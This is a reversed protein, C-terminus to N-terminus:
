AAIALALKEIRERERLEELWHQPIDEVGRRAVLLAGACAADTDTDGGLSIAFAVGRAFDDIVCTAWLAVALTAWATGRQTLALQRLGEEDRQSVFRLSETFRRDNRVQYAAAGFPDHPTRMAAVLAASASSAALDYHTLTADSRAASLALDHDAAAIAIPACRMLTGNGATKQTSRHWRYARKRAATASTAGQLAERCTIGVDKPGSAVWTAYRRVLDDEDFLRREERTALISEALCLAMATGDTWEGPERGGGGSMALRDPESPPAQGSFEYPAGLADGVALGLLVQAPAPGTMQPGAYDAM